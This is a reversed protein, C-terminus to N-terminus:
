TTETGTAHSTQKRDSM